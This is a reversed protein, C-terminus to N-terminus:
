FRIQAETGKQVNNFDFKGDIQGTLATIIEFGLSNIVYPDIKPDIGIGNDWVTLLNESEKEKDYDISVQIIGENNEPIGHQLANAVLEVLILGINVALEASIGKCNVATRLDVTKNEAYLYFVKTLVNEIYREFDVHAVENHNHLEHHILSMSYIRSKTKKLAKVTLADEIEEFEFKLLSIIIQLNNKVRHYVEQLLLENEKIKQELKEELGKKETINQAIGILRDGSIRSNTWQTWVTVNDSRKYPRELLDFRALDLEGRAMRSVNSKRQRAEEENKSTITWWGNGLVEKPKLFYIREVAQNAYIINGDRDAILVVANIHDLSVDDPAKIKGNNLDTPARNFNPKDSM